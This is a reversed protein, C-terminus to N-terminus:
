PHRPDTLRGYGGLRCLGVEEARPGRWVLAVALRWLNARCALGSFSIDSTSTVHLAEEASSALMHMKAPYILAAM